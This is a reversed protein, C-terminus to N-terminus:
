AEYVEAVGRDVVVVAIETMKQLKEAAETDFQTLLEQIGKRVALGRAFPIEGRDRYEQWNHGPMLYEALQGGNIDDVNIIVIVANESNLGLEVTRSIFHAVRDANMELTCRCNHKEIARIFALGEPDDLVLQGNIERVTARPAEYQANDSM